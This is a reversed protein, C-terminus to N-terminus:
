YNRRNNNNDNDYAYMLTQQFKYDLNNIKMNVYVIAILLIILSIAVYNDIVFKKADDYSSM